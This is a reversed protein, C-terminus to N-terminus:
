WNEPRFQKLDYKKEANDALMLHRGDYIVQQNLLRIHDEEPLISNFLRINTQQWPQGNADIRLVGGNTWSYAQDLKKNGSNHLVFNTGDGRHAANESPRRYVWYSLEPDTQQLGVMIAYWVDPTVSLRFDHCTDNIEIKLQDNQLGIRWGNDGTLGNWMNYYMSNNIQRPIRFWTMFSRHQGAKIESDSIGYSVAGNTPQGIGFDYYYSSIINPGSELEHSMVNVSTLQRQLDDRSLTRHQSLNAVDRREQKEKEGYVQEVGSPGLIDDLVGEIEPSSAKVSAREEFKILRVVYYNSMGLAGKHAYAHQIEFIENLICIRMADNKRPMAQPGFAGKFQNRPIHVNFSDFTLMNMFDFSLSSGDPITGNPLVIKIKAYCEWQHLQQENMFYDIGNEDPQTYFYDVELGAISTVYDTQFEMERAIFEQLEKHPNWLETEPGCDQCPEGDDSEELPRVPLTFQSMLEDYPNVPGCDQCPGSDGACDARVGMKNTRTSEKTVNIFEGMFDVGELTLVSDGNNTIRLRYEFFKIPTINLAKLNDNNLPIWNSYTRGNNQSYQIEMLLSGPDLSLVEVSHLRIVKFIENSEYIVTEGPQLKIFDSDTKRPQYTGNFEIYSLSVNRGLVTGTNSIRLDIFYPLEKCSETQEKIKQDTLVIWDSTESGRVRFEVNLGAGSELYSSINVDSIVTGANFPKDSEIVHTDGPTSTHWYVEYLAYLADRDTKFQPEVTSIQNKRM